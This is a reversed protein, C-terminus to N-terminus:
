KLEKNKKYANVLRLIIEEYTERKSLRLKKLLDTTTTDVQITTKM